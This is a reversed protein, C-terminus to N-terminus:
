AAVEVLMPQGSGLANATVATNEIVLDQRQILMTVLAELAKTDVVVTNSQPSAGGAWPNYAKPVIAEGEHIQALMDRPVYNTGVAFAPIGASAFYKNIDEEKYGTATAIESQSVGYKQAEAAIAAPNAANASAFAQISAFRAIDGTDTVAIETRGTPLNVEKYYGTGSGKGTKSGGSGQVGAFTNSSTGGASGTTAKGTTADVTPQLIAATLKDVAEAVSKVSTDIGSAADILDNMAKVTDELATLQDKAVKLALEAATLQEGTKAKLQSLEGALVLRAKDEEFKSTYQKSAIGGVAANIAESLQKQDPIVGGANALALAATIYARGQAASQAATSDVQNYLDRVSSDLLDFVEQISQQAATRTEIITNIRNREAEVAHDFAAKADSISKARAAEAAAIAQQREKEAYVQRIIAKTSEDTTSALDRKKALELDTTKGTLLDLQDQWAQMNAVRAKEAQDVANVGSALKLLSAYYKANAEISLDMAGARAVESKYWDALQADDQPVGKAGAETFSRNLQAKAVAKKDDASTFLNYYNALSSQLTDLGGAADILARTTTVSLKSLYDFPLDEIAKQFAGVESVNDLAVKLDEIKMAAVDLPKLYDNIAPGLDTEKLASILAQSTSLELAAKLEADSKGVNEYGGSVKNRDYVLKGNVRTEYLLQTNSKGNPDTAFYVGTKLDGAMRGLGTVIAKYSADLNDVVAKATSDGAGGQFGGEKTWHNQSIMTVASGSNYGGDVKPVGGSGFLRDVAKGITSGIVSGIPGGFYTGVASGIGEGWKGKSIAMAANLYGFGDGLTKAWDGIVNANEMLSSGFKNLPGSTNTTLWSGIDSVKFATSGGFDSFWSKLSSLNFGGPGGATSSMGGLSTPSMGAVSAAINIIWQKATMQYLLDLISAKLTQGIRKFADQGGTTVDTWVRQATRDISDVVSKWEADTQKKMAGAVRAEALQRTAAATRNLVDISAELAKTGEYSAAQAEKSAAVEYDRAKQLNAIEIATKGLAENEQLQAKLKADTAEYAKWIAEANASNEETSKKMDANIAAWWEHEQRKADVMDLSAQLRQRESASLKTSQDALKTRMDLVFKEGDTLKRGGALEAEMMASRQMMSANLSDYASAAEKVAATAKSVVPAVNRWAATQQDISGVAGLIRPDTFGEGRPSSDGQVRVGMIRGSQIDVQKRAAAADTEMMKGIDKFGKFDFRALAGLQAVMGGIENGVQKFVYAVNIGLVGITEFATKIAGSVFDGLQGAGQRTDLFAQALSNLTPLLDGAIKIKLAEGSLTIRKLNDNFDGAAKAMDDSMVAGFLTAEGRLQAIGEAGKNLIPIMDQGSKGFLEMALAAKEPGDAYNKFKDAIDGLMQDTSRLTGDANRFALGMADFVAVQEKSGGAAASMTKTLKTLGTGLADLPTGAVEAAYRWESLASASIGTKEAMDDLRDAMDILGKISAAEFAGAIMVGLTGFKGVANSVVGQFREAEDKVLAINRQASSFAASTNDQATLRIGIDAM